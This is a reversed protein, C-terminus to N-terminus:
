QPILEFSEFFRRTDPENEIGSRGAVVLHYLRGRVWYTRTVINAGDAKVVVYERGPYPGMALREESRLAHGASSSARERERDLLADASVGRVATHPYDTYSVLYVTNTVKVTAATMSVTKGAGIQVPETSVTPTGPMEVQYRGNEPRYETWTQAAAAAALFVAPGVCWTVFCGRM